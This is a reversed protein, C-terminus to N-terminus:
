RGGVKVIAYFDKEYVGDKKDLRNLEQRCKRAEDYTCDECVIAKTRKVIVNYM